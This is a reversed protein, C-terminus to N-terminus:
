ARKRRKTFATLIGSATTLALLLPLATGDGTDVSGDGPTVTVTCEAYIESNSKLTARITATGAKKGTIVGDAVTAVSEDSSTWVLEQDSADSPEVWAFITTPTGAKVTVTKAEEAGAEDLYLYLAEAEIGNVTVTCIGKINEDDVSVAYIKCVAGPKVATVEGTQADVAVLEPNESIWKVNKNTADAPTVTATLPAKDLADLTVTEPEVAVGAVAIKTVNVTCTALKSPDATSKVTIETTGVAVGRVVGNEDVTAIAPDASSWELTKDTANEPSVVATLTSDSGNVIVSIADKNLTVGSVPVIASAVTVPIIKTVTPDDALTITISCQGEAVATVVGENVTAVAPNSTSWVLTQSNQVDKSATITENGGVALALSGKDVSISKAGGANYMEVEDMWVLINGDSSHIFEWTEILIRAATIRPFDIVLPQNEGAETVSVGPYAAANETDYLTIAAGDAGAAKIRYQSPIGDNKSAEMGFIKIQNLTTLSAYQFTFRLPNEKTVEADDATKFQGQTLLFNGFYQSQAAGDTLDTVPRDQNINSGSNVTVVSRFALNDSASVDVPRAIPTGDPNAADNFMMWETIWYAVNADPTAKGGELGTYPAICRLTVAKVTTPAFNFRYGTHLRHEPILEYATQDYLLTKSGDPLTGVLQFKGPLGYGVHEFSAYFVAASVLTPDPFTMTIEVGDPHSELYEYSIMWGQSQGSSPVTTGDNLCELGRNEGDAWSDGTIVVGGAQAVNVMPTNNEANRPNPNWSSTQLSMTANVTFVTMATASVVALAAALFTKTRKM